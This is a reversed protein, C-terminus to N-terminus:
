PRAESIATILKELKLTAKTPEDAGFAMYEIELVRSQLIGGFADSSLDVTARCGDSQCVKIGLDWSQDSTRAQVGAEVAVGLPVTTILSASGDEVNILVEIVSFASGDDFELTKQFVCFPADCDSIWPTDRLEAALGMAPLMMLFAFLRIM